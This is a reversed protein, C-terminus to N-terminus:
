KTCRDAVLTAYGAIDQWHDRFNPDGALIRGIKHFIMDLAETQAVNLKEVAPFPTDSATDTVHFERVVRKLQQTIHAHYAYDGHTTARESLLVNINRTNIQPRPPKGVLSTEGNLFSQIEKETDTM